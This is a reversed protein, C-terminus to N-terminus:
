RPPHRRSRSVRLQHRLVARSSRSRAARGWAPFSHHLHTIGPVYCEAVALGLAQAVCVRGAAAAAKRVAEGVLEGGNVRVHAVGVERYAPPQGGLDAGLLEAGGECEAGVQGRDRGAHVVQDARAEVGGLHGAM